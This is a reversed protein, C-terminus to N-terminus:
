DIVFSGGEQYSFLWSIANSFRAGWANESHEPNIADLVLLMEEEQFGSAQLQFYVDEVRTVFKESDIHTVGQSEAEQTGIDLYIRIHDCEKETWKLARKKRKYGVEVALSFAAIKSFVHQYKLGVHMAADAGLSSGAIATYERERLTRFNADIYEKVNFVLDEAYDDCALWPLYDQERKKGHAIGVVIFAYGPDQAYLDDLVQEVNWTGYLSLGLDFINQGDQMYVVPFYRETETQYCAPLYIYLDRYSNLRPMFFNKILKIQSGSENKRMKRVLLEKKM